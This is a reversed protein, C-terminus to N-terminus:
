KFILILVVSIILQLVIWVGLGIYVLRQLEEVKKVLNEHTLNYEIKTVFTQAQEKLQDRIGNSEELRNAMLKEAIEVAKGSENFRMDFYKKLTKVTWSM